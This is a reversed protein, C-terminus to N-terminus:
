YMQYKRTFWGSYLVEYRHGRVDLRRRKTESGSTTDVSTGFSENLLHIIDPEITEMDMDYDADSSFSLHYRGHTILTKVVDETGYQCAKYFATVYDPSILSSPSRLVSSVSLTTVCEFPDSGKIVDGVSRILLEVMEADGQECATQLIVPLRDILSESTGMNLILRAAELDGTRCWFELADASPGVKMLIHEFIDIDRRYACEILAHRMLEPKSRIQELNRDILIGLLELNPNIICLAMAIEIGRNCILDICTEVITHSLHGYKPDDAGECFPSNIWTGVLCKEVLDPTFQSAWMSYAAKIKDKRHTTRLGYCMLALMRSIHGLTIRSQFLDVVSRFTLLSADSAAEDFISGLDSTIAEHRIRLYALAVSDRKDEILCSFVSAHNRICILDSGYTNILYTVIDAYNNFACTSLVCDDSRNADLESGYEEILLRFINIKFETTIYYSYSQLVWFLIGKGNVTANIDIIDRMTKIIRKVMCADGEWCAFILAQTAAESATIEADTQIVQLEQRPVVYCAYKISLAYRQDGQNYSELNCVKLMDITPHSASGLLLSLNHRNNKVIDCM